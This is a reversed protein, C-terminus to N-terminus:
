SESSTLHYKMGCWPTAGSGRGRPAMEHCMAGGDDMQTLNPTRLPTVTDTCSYQWEVANLRCENLSLKPAVM